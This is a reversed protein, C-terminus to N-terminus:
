AQDSSAPAAQDGWIPEFLPTAIAAAFVSGILLLTLSGLRNEPPARDVIYQVSTPQM